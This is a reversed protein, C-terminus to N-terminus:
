KLILMVPDPMGHAPDDPTLFYKKCKKWPNGASTTRNIKDIYAVPAGNIATFNDLPMLMNGIDKVNIESMVDQIYSEICRNLMKTNLKNIPKVLDLAAIRWPVWSTMQPATYLKNYKEDCLYKSMPTDIVKSKTKGRFDTFSGFVEASGDKLYRFISKKHLDGVVRKSSPASVLSFDGREINFPEMGNYVSRIFDGDIDIAYVMNMDNALFHLGVISYGYSSNIVLPSGCDGAVTSIESHAGWMTHNFEIEKEPFTYQQKKLLKVKKLSKTQVSGDSGRIVYAGNFIGDSQGSQFYQVIKKMPPLSRLTIFVLDNNPIRHIDDESLICTFNSSMGIKNDLTIKLTNSEAKPINHNNTIWIHGGLCVMRGDIYYGPKKPNPLRIYAVNKAIKALFQTFEMSKSSSSERTFNATSLEMANNYWVNERGDEEVEPKTGFDESIGGQPKVMTYLQYLSLSTALLASISGLFVPYKLKNSMKKGMNVWDQKSGIRQRVNFELEELKSKSNRYLVYYKYSFILYEIIKYRKVYNIIYLIILTVCSLLVIEGSQPVFNPCLTDPISCCMCLNIERMKRICDSVKDHDSNFEDIAKTYWLLMERLNLNSHLIEIVAKRKGEKLPVPRVIKIDFTWLDPYIDMCDVNSSNLMGRSDKYEERVTPTIIYPFRRQVASPCSFYYYANLDEVNTTAVVLKAKFPTTGKSELSAQDPCFAQNNMIQIIENVSKPDGVEPAENAIDDLIVTHCSTTFGDWYKAVPNRTYCFESGQPLGQHKSFVITLISTITTKGIGSDGSILIGFPAKRNRRAAAKTNVDDRMMLMENLMAKIMQVDCKDLRFSHKSISELKEINNDLNSRFESETFGHEEPNILLDKQRKLLRCADFVDSYQGGSHFITNIDRTVYVQYGREVIFLTTDFLSYIFDSRKYYKKRLAAQELKSYGINDLSIGIKDFLSFSMM